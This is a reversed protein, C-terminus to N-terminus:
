MRYQFTILEKDKGTQVFGAKTFLKLSAINSEAIDAKIFSFQLQIKNEVIDRLIQTGYGKHQYRPHVELGIHLVNDWIEAHVSGIIKEDKLVKYYFVNETQTVYTFYNTFDISFYEAIEPMRYVALLEPIDKDGQLLKEYVLIYEM